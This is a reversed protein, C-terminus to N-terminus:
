KGVDRLTMSMGLLGGIHQWSLKPLFLHQLKGFKLKYETLIRQIGEGCNFLFRFFIILFLILGKVM